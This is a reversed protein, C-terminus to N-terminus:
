ASLTSKGVVVMGEPRALENGDDHGQPRQIVGCYNRGFRNLRSLLALKSKDHLWVLGHFRAQNRNALSDVVLNDHLASDRGTFRHHRVALEPQEWARVNAYNGGAM